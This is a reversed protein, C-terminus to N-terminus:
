SHTAHGVETCRVYGEPLQENEWFGKEDTFFITKGTEPNGLVWRGCCTCARNVSGYPQGDQSVFHVTKIM